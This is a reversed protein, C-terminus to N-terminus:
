FRWCKQSSQRYFDQYFDVDLITLRIHYCCWPASPTLDSLHSDVFLLRIGYGSHITQFFNRLQSFIFIELFHIYFFQCKSFNYIKFFPYKTFTSIRYESFFFIQFFPYKSFIFQLYFDLDLITLRIQLWNHYESRDGGIVADYASPM